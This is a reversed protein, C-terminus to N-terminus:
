LVPPLVQLVAQAFWAVAVQLVQPLVQLFLLVMVDLQRQQQVTLRQQKQAVVEVLAQVLAAGLGQL